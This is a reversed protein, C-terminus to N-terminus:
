GEALLAALRLFTQENGEQAFRKVVECEAVTGFRMCFSLRTRPREEKFTVIERNAPFDADQEISGAM